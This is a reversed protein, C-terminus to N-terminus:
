PFEKALLTRLNDLNTGSEPQPKPDPKNSPEAPVQVSPEPQPQQAVTPPEARTTPAPEITVTPRQSKTPPHASTSPAAGDVAVLGSAEPKKGWSTFILIGVGLCCVGFLAGAVLLVRARKNEGKRRKRSQVPETRGPYLQDFASEAGAAPLQAEPGSP